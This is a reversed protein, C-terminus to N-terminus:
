FKSGKLLNDREWLPQLNSLANVVRPDSGIPFSFLPRVHDINWMGEGKGHNEWTMGPLFLSELHMRLQAPTFGLQEYSRGSKSVGLSNLSRALLAFCRKKLKRRLFVAQRDPDWRPSNPGQLAPIKKGVKAASIRSRTLGSRRKGTNAQARKLVTFPSQKRGRQTFSASCSRSCFKRSSRGTFSTRCNCCVLDM